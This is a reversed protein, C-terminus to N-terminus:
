NIDTIKMYKICLIGLILGIYSYFLDCFDFFSGSDFLQLIEYFSVLLFSTAFISFLNNNVKKPSTKLFSFFFPLSLAGLLSPLSNYFHNTPLENRLIYKFYVIFASIFIFIFLNLYKYKM